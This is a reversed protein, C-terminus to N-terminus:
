VTPKKFSTVHQPPQFPSPAPTPPEQAKKAAGLSAGRGAPVPFACQRRRPALSPSKGWPCGLAGDAEGYCSPSSSTPLEICRTLARTLRPWLSRPVEQGSGLQMGGRRAPSRVGLLSLCPLLPLPPLLSRNMRQPPVLSHSLSCALAGCCPGREGGHGSCPHAQWQFCHSTFWPWLLAIATSM